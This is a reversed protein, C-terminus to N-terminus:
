AAVRRARRYNPNFEYKQDKGLNHKINNERKAPLEIKEVLFTTSGIDGLAARPQVAAVKVYCHNCYKPRFEAPVQYTTTQPAKLLTLLTM